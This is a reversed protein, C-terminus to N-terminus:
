LHEALNADLQMKEIPNIMQIDDINCKASKFHHKIINEQHFNIEPQIVHIKDGLEIIVTGACPCGSKSTILQHGDTSAQAKLKEIVADRDRSNLISTHCQNTAQTCLIRIHRKSLATFVHSNPHKYKEGETGVSIVTVSPKVTDLLIGPDASKWAGHHPFKLLDCRLDPHRKQLQLWGEPELDGTLLASSGSGTVQLVVSTNNLSGTKLDFYDVLYPHVLQIAKVLTGEFPLPRKEVKIEACKLENRKCWEVLNALSSPFTKKTGVEAKKYDSSHGDTDPELKHFNKPKSIENFALVECEQLNSAHYYSNLLMAIKDYHDAHLHTIIVGRLYTIQEAELYDLVANADVCDVVIAEHTERCSIVITDAQGVDFFAIKVTPPKADFEIKKM